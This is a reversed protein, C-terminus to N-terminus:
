SIIKVLVKVNALISLTINDIDDVYFSLSNALM